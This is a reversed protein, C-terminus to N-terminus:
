SSRCASVKLKSERRATGEGDDQREPTERGLSSMWRYWGPDVELEARLAARCAERHVYKVFINQSRSAICVLKVDHRELCSRLRRWLDGHVVPLNRANIWGRNDWVQFYDLNVTEQLIKCDTFLRVKCPVPLQELALVAAMLEMRVCTTRLYGGSIREQKEGQMILFAYGGRSPNKFASGDTYIITEAPENAFERVLINMARRGLSRNLVLLPTSLGVEFVLAV